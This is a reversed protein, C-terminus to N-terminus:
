GPSVLPSRGRKSAKHSGETRKRKSSQFIVLANPSETHYRALSTNEDYLVEQNSVMHAMVRTPTGTGGRGHIRVIISDYNEADAFASVKSNDYSGQELRQFDHDEGCPMLDFIERHIDRLKGTVYTPHEVFNPFSGLTIGPIQGTTNPGVVTRGDGHLKFAFGDAADVHTQVRIAEWWGDNEDSNNTLTFKCAQSVIRWRLIRTEDAQTINGGGAAPDLVCHSTYPMGWSADNDTVGAAVMGNNIGPFILFDMTGNTNATFEKVAQLRLGTSHYSKGDPIKAGTSATSFANHYVALHRTIPSKRYGGRRGYTRRRMTVTRRKYIKRGRVPFRRRYLPM